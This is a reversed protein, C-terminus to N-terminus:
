HLWVQSGDPGVLLDGVHAEEEEVIDQHQTAPSHTVQGERQALAACVGELGGHSHAAQGHALDCVSATLERRRWRVTVGCVCWGAAADAERRLRADRRRGPPAPDTRPRRWLALRPCPGSGSPAAPRWSSLESALVTVVRTVHGASADGVTEPEPVMDIDNRSKRIWRARVPSYRLTTTVTSVSGCSILHANVTGM